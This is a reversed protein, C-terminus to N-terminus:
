FSKDKEDVSGKCFPTKISPSVKKLFKEVEAHKSLCFRYCEKREVDDHNGTKIRIPRPNYGFNELLQHIKSLLIKDTNTFDVQWYPGGEAKNTSFGGDGEYAGRLFNLPFKVAINWLEDFKQKRFWNVFKKSTVRVRFISSKTWESEKEPPIINTHPNLGINRLASSFSEAFLKESTKLSVIRQYDYSTVFGDTLLVGIIYSLSSSPNLSPIIPRPGSKRAEIGLKKMQRHITSHSCECLQAIEGQTLGEEVYKQYLWNRDKYKRKM